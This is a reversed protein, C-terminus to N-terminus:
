RSAAAEDDGARLALDDASAGLIEAVVIEYRERLREYARRNALKRQEGLYDAEVQRRVADLALPAAPQSQTVYVLHVGYGSLIPGQWAAPALEMVEGAFRSGFTRSIQAQSQSAYDGYLMFRDGLKGGGDAAAGNARLQELAQQADAYAREGRRDTSFYIHSFSVRAAQQYRDRHTAFYERLAEEPPDAPVAIDTVLFEMKQVMRRRVITDDRDLGMALAERYLVEERIRDAVLRELEQPTPARQWQRAWQDRLAQIDAATLEIRNGARSVESDSGTWGYLAFLLAGFVLFHVLPERLLTRKDQM